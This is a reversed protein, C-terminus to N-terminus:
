AHDGPRQCAFSSIAGRRQLFRPHGPDEESWWWKGDTYSPPGANNTRPLQLNLDRWRLLVVAGPVTGATTNPLNPADVAGNDVQALLPDGDCVYHEPSLATAPAAFALEILTALLLALLVM